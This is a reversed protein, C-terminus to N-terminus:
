LAFEAESLLGLATHLSRDNWEDINESKTNLLENIRQRGQFDIAEYVLLRMCLTDEQTM